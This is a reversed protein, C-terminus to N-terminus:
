GTAHVKKKRQMNSRMVRIAGVTRGLKTALVEDSPRDSATIMDIHRLSWEEGHNDPNDVLNSLLPASRIPAPRSWQGFVGQAGQLETQAAQISRAIAAREEANLSGSFNKNTSLRRMWRAFMDIRVRVKDASFDRKTRPASEGADSTIMQRLEGISLGASVTKQAYHLQQEGTPLRALAAVFHLGLKKEAILAQVNEPMSLLEMRKRVFSEGKHTRAAVEQLGLGYDKMLRLFAHAEEFPNLDERHLNEGLAILLYNLPSDSEIVLAPIEEMGKQKAARLRRSGIILEFKSETDPAVVIPQLLGEGVLSEGLEQLPEDAYYTRLQVVSEQIDAIPILRFGHKTIASVSM